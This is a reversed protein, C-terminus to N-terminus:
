LGSPTKLFKLKQSDIRLYFNFRCNQRTCESPNSGPLIQNQVVSIEPKAIETTVSLFWSLNDFFKKVTGLM